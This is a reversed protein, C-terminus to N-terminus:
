EAEHLMLVGTFDADRASDVPGAWTASEGTDHKHQAFNFKLFVPRNSQGQAAFAATKGPDILADWPVAVEGRWVQGDVTTAYRVSAQLKQWPERPSDKKENWDIGGPKVTVHVLPGTSGDDYVAQIVAQCLDEGWARGDQYEVFNRGAMVQSEHSVGEVRFALYFDTDSWGSYLDTPTTSYEPTHQQVSPRSVMKVLPGKQLADYDNWDDLSGNILLPVNRRMTRRVPVVVDLPTKAGNFRSTYTIQIPEQRTMSTEAPDVRATVGQSAVQYMELKPIITPAPEVVWGANLKTFSLENQEPTTDSANYLDFGLKLRVWPGAQGPPPDSVDWHTSRLLIEPKELPEIWHLTQQQLDAIANEDPTVGPGRSQIIRTLLPKMDRWAAPDATGLLLSYVPSPSQGPQIVVPKALVRAMPLVDLVSGRQQALWLYEFDQEAQRLWKLQVTAVPQDVGFWEGPYFWALENPDAAQTPSGEAPLCADWQILNQVPKKFDCRLFAAWAWVRVDAEDAGAGTYPILGSLDTRMWNQPHELNKPWDQLASNSILGPAVCNLRGTDGPDIWTPNDPSALMAEAPELPVQVRIRRNARLVRAADVSLRLRDDLTAPGPTEKNLIVPAFRLWDRADFHQAAADYYQVQASATLNELHDVRPLAWFGLPVKDPFASGTLWPGVLTDYDAWDIQVPLGPKWKAVPQLRPVHALVRNEEALSVLRDLMDVAPKTNPDNRSILRPQVVEFQAPWLRRLRDWPVDAVMGLHRDEPLVFDAVDLPVEVKAQVSAPKGADAIEFAFQGDYHGPTTDVPVRLDVWLLTPEDVAATTPDTARAPDRLKTLDVRGNNIPLPLLARPLSEAAVAQGTQRVYAARNVNQPMPLLQYVRLQRTSLTKGNSSWEPLVLSGSEGKAPARARLVVSVWESRGAMLQLPTPPGSPNAPDVSALMEPRTVVPVPATEPTPDAAATPQVAIPAPEATTSRTNVPAPVSLHVDEAAPAVDKGGLGCGGTVWGATACAMLLLAARGTCRM